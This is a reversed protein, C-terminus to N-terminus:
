GGALPLGEQRYKRYYDLVKNVYQRTEPYPPISRNHRIVANEGANYAALALPMDGDFLDLLLKLYRTGGFVNARPDTRNGVGFRRATAPMLQMLGVAGASSLAEPDYASEATIVAHVLADPLQQALAAEAILPAFRRQNQRFQRADYTPERWGKWTKVLQKYGPHPPQDTFHTRGQKDIYRYIETAHAPTTAAGLAACCAIVRAIALMGPLCINPM